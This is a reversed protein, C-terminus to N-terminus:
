DHTIDEGISKPQTVPRYAIVDPDLQAYRWIAWTGGRPTGPKSKPWAVWDGDADRVIHYNLRMTEYYAIVAAALAEDVGPAPVGGDHQAIYDLAFKRKIWDIPGM